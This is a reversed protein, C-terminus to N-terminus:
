ALIDETPLSAFSKPRVKPDLCDIKQANSPKMFDLMSQNTLSSCNMSQKVLKKRLILLLLMIHVKSAGV